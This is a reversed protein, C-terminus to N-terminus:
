LQALTNQEEAIQSETEMKQAVEQEKLLQLDKYRLMKETNTIIWKQIAVVDISSKKM